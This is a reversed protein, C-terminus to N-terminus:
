APPQCNPCFYCSGGLFSTKEIPITCDPCPKGAATSDLIRAYGGPQNHLGYENDRGGLDAAERLTSRISNYLALRESESLDVVRRRPHIKARFLIDHLYGNGIGSVGPKSIVFSKASRPDRAEIGAFLGLFYEPTFRDSLPSIAETRIFYNGPLESDHLLLAAGWGHISVTLVTGDEFELMFQRKAPLASSDPHLLIREGGHGLVLTYDPEVRLGIACGYAGAEGLTRGALISVYEEPTRSYFAFKHPSNGLNASRIRRGRLEANMQGAIALAEPLEIM